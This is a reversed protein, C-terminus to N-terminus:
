ALVNLETWYRGLSSVFKQFDDFSVPKLVYSNAYSHYAAKIDKEEDSTTLMVIPIHKLESQKIKDLVELGNIKPLNLDLLILRLDNVASKNEPTLLFELAEEGDKVWHIKGSFGNNMIALKTLEADEERDEVLLINSKNSTMKQQVITSVNCVFIIM